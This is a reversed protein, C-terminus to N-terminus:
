KSANLAKSGDHHNFTAYVPIQTESGPLIVAVAARLTAAAQKFPCFSQETVVGSTGGTGGSGEPSAPVIGSGALEPPTELFASPGVVQVADRNGSVELEVRVGRDGLNVLRLAAAGSRKFEEVIQPLSMGTGASPVAPAGERVSRAAMGVQPPRGEGLEKAGATTSALRDSTLTAPVPSGVWIPHALAGGFFMVFVQSGKAPLAYFGAGDFGGNGPLCAEAWPLADDPIYGLESYSRGASVEAPLASVRPASSQSMDDVGGASGHFQAIRVRLRMRNEPDDNSVVTGCWVGDVYHHDGNTGPDRSLDDRAVDMEDM